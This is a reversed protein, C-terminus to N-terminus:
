KISRIAGILQQLLRFYVIDKVKLTMTIDAGTEPDYFKANKLSEGDIAM